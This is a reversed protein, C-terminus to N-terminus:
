PRRIALRVVRQVDLEDTSVGYVSRGRIRKLTFSPPLTVSGLFRGERDFVDWDPGGALLADLVPTAPMAEVPLTRQVWITGDPGGALAAIPPLTDPPVFAFRQFSEAIDAESLGADRMLERVRDIVRERGASGLPRPAPDKQVIMELAGDARRAEIRYQNTLATVVRGDSTVTWVPRAPLLVIEVRDDPTRRKSAFGRTAEMDYDFTVMTDVLEGGASVHMLGDWVNGNSIRDIRGGDPLAASARPRGPLQVARIFSGAADFVDDRRNIGDRVAISGDDEVRLAFMDISFEGPGRGSRGFAFAFGGDTEFVRVEAAQEDLVFIRGADDVDLDTIRGFQYAGAGGIGDGITLDPEARWRTEETWSGAGENLVIRVGSSDRVAPAGGTRGVADGSCAAAITCTVLAAELM